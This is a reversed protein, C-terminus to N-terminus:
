KGTMMPFTLDLQEAGRCRDQRILKPASSQTDERLTSRINPEGTAGHDTWENKRSQSDDPQAVKKPLPAKRGGCDDTEDGRPIEGPQNERVSRRRRLSCGAQGRHERDQTADRKTSEELKQRRLSDRPQNRSSRQDPGPKGVGDRTVRQVPLLVGLIAPDARSKTLAGRGQQDLWAITGLLNKEVTQGDDM